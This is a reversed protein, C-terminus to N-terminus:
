DLITIYKGNAIKIIQADPALPSLLARVGDMLLVGVGSFAVHAARFASEPDDLDGVGLAGDHGHFVGTETNRPYSARLLSSLCFTPEPFEEIDLGVIGEPRGFSSRCFRAMHLCLIGTGPPLVLTGETEFIFDESDDTLKVVAGKTPASGHKETLYQMAFESMEGLWRSHLGDVNIRM